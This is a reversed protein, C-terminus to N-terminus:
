KYWHFGYRNQHYANLELNVSAVYMDAEIRIPVRNKDDSVWIRIADEGKFLENKPLVPNLKLVKIKGFRTKVVDKGVYRVKMNYIDKDFFLPASVTEGVKMKSFDVTRLYYYGSIMDQVFVPVKYVEKKDKDLKTVTHKQHDFDYTQDRKFNGERASYEFKLPLIATTDIFSRYTNRVKFLDTVGTTRGFVNVRYCPTNDVNFIKQHVEVDALGIPIVGYKVKYSYGEGAKFSDNKVVRPSNFAWVAWILLPVILIKFRKM